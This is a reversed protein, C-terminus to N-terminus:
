VVGRDTARRRSDIRARRAATNGYARHPFLDLPRTPMFTAAPRAMAIRVTFPTAPSSQNLEDTVTLTIPFIGATSPTGNLIGDLGVALGGMPATPPTWVLPALGDLALFRFSYPSGVTATPPPTNVITPAVPESIAITYAVSNTVPAPTSNDTVTVTFAFPTSSAATPTGSVSGDPNLALGPPLIGATVTWGLPLYGGTATFAFGYPTGHVGAPPTQGSDILVPAPTDITITFQRWGTAAPQASDTATVTFPFTGVATPTGSLTGDAALTLGGPLAGSSIAFTFPPAGGSANFYYGYPNTLM